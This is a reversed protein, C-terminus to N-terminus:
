PTPTDLTRAQNASCSATRAAAIAALVRDHFVNAPNRYPSDRGANRVAVAALRASSVPGLRYAQVLSEALVVSPRREGRELLSLMRRSILTRREAESLSWGRALRAQRLMAAVDPPLDRHAARRRWPPDV